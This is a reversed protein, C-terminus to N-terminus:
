PLLHELLDILEDDAPPFALSRLATRPVWRIEQGLVSRPEGLLECSFFHLEVIREPYAHSSTLLEPGVRVGADLEERIERALCADLSEGPDCKGGPFEWLGELHVGQQRRTVLFADGRRIVAATVVIRPTDDPM